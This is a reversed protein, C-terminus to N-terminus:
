GSMGDVNAGIVTCFVVQDYLQEKGLENCGM